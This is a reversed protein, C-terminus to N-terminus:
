GCEDVCYRYNLRGSGTGYTGGSTPHGGSSDFRQIRNNYTDAVYVYGSADVAVGSPWNFQGNSSGYTGWQTMYTGSSSFKQIRDNYTDAVYVNGSADVAVGSPADFYGNDM